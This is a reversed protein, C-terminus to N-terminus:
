CGGKEELYRIVLLMANKDAYSEHNDQMFGIIAKVDFFRSPERCYIKKIYSREEDLAAIVDLAGGVYANLMPQEQCSGPTSECIKMFQSTTLSLANNSTFVSLGVFTVISLFSQKM